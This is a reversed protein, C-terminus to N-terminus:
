FLSPSFLNVPVVGAGVVAAAGFGAVPVTAAGVYMPTYVGMIHAEALGSFWSRGVDM